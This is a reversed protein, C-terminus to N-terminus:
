KAEKADGYMRAWDRELVTQWIDEKIERLSTWFYYHEDPEVPSGDDDPITYAYQYLRRNNPPYPNIDRWIDYGFYRSHPMRM